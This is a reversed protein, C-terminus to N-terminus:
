DRMAPTSYSRTESPILEHFDLDFVATLSAIFRAGTLRPVEHELQLERRLYAQPPRAAADEFNLDVASARERLFRGATKRRAFLNGATEGSLPQFHPRLM